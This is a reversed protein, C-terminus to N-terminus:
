EKNKQRYLDKAQKYMLAGDITSFAIPDMVAAGKNHKLAENKIANFEHKIQPGILIVDAEQYHQSISAISCMEIRDDKDAFKRMNSVLISTSMGLACVLLIRM